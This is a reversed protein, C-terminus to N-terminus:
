PHYTRGVVVIESTHYPSRDLAPPRPALGPLQELGVTYDSVYLQPDASGRLRLTM